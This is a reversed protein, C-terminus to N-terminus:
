NKIEFYTEKLRPHKQAEKYTLGMLQAFTRVHAAYMSSKSSSKSKNKKTLSKRKISNRGGKFRSGIFAGLATGGLNKTLLSGAAAGILTNRLRNDGGKMLSQKNSFTSIKNFIKQINEQSFNTGSLPNKLIFKANKNFRLNSKYTELPSRLGGNHILKYLSRIDFCHKVNNETTM